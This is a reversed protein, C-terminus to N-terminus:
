ARPGRLGGPRRPRPAEAEEMPGRRRFILGGGGTAPVGAPPSAGLVGPSWDRVMPEVGEVADFRGRDDSIPEPEPRSAPRAAVPPEGAPRTLPALPARARGAGRGQAEHGRSERKLLRLEDRTLERWAGLAVGRLSLGGIGVRSVKRIQCGARRLVEPLQRNRGELLTIRLVAGENKGRGMEISARGAGGEYISPLPGEEPGAADPAATRREARDPPVSLGARRRETRRHLKGLDKEIAALQDPTIPRKLLVEYSRAVGYRPHTLRNALEGDNTLLVLGTADFDLRGVPFLRAGSPHQVLDNVTRRDAGPEDAAAVLVREPKHYMVYVAREAAPLPRGDIEVRDQGPHVFVPLRDVVRGNVRVRGAEIMSECVRRAAVGRDAM